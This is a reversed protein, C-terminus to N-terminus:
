SLGENSYDEQLTLALIFKEMPTYNIKPGQLARSVFYAPMQKEDRETMLVTSIAEKAAALYIVLEKKRKTRNVFAIGSDIKENTQIDDESESDM